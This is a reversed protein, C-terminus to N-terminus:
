LGVPVPEYLMETLLQSSGSATPFSAVSGKLLRYSSVQM